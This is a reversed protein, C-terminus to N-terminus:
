AKGNKKKETEEKSKTYHLAYIDIIKNILRERRTTISASHSQHM